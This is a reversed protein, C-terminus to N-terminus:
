FFLIFSLAGIILNWHHNIGSWDKRTRIWGSIVSWTIEFAFNSERYKAEL